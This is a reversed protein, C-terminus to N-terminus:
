LGGDKQYADPPPRMRAEKIRQPMKAPIPAKMKSTAGSKVVPKVSRDGANGTIAPKPNQAVDVARKNRMNDSMEKPVPAKMTAKAKPVAAKAKPMAKKAAAEAAARAKMKKLTGSSPTHKKGNIMVTPM